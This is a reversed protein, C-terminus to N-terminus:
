KNVNVSIKKAKDFGNSTLVRDIVDKNSEFWKNLENEIASFTPFEDRLVNLKGSSSKTIAGREVANAVLIDIEAQPTGARELALRFAKNSLPKTKPTTNQVQSM